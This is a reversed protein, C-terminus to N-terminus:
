QVWWYRDSILPMWAMILPLQNVIITIAAGFIEQM